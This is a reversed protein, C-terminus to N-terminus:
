AALAFALRPHQQASLLELVITPFSCGRRSNCDRHTLRLNASSREGGYTAPFLHDLNPTLAHGRPLDTRVEAQCLYCIWQDRLAIQWPCAETHELNSCHLCNGLRADRAFRFAAACDPSCFPAYRRRSRPKNWCQRCPAQRGGPLPDLPSAWLELQLGYQEILRLARLSRDPRSM